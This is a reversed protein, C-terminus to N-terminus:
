KEKRSPKIHVPCNLRIVVPATGDVLKFSPCTCGQAVSKATGPRPETRTKM